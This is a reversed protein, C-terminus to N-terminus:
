FICGLRGDEHRQSGLIPFLFVKPMCSRQKTTEVRSTSSFECSFSCTSFLFLLDSGSFSFDTKKVFFM